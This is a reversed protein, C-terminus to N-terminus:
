SIEAQAIQRRLNHDLDDTSKGLMPILEPLLEPKMQLLDILGMIRTLPERVQHAHFKAMSALAQNREKLAENQVLLQEHQQQNVASIQMNETELAEMFSLASIAASLHAALMRVFGIDKAGFPKADSSTLSVIIQRHEDSFNWAWLQYDVTDDLSSCPSPEWLNRPWCRPLPDNLMENEWWKWRSAATALQTCVTPQGLPLHFTYHHQHVRMSFRFWHFNILYKLGTGLVEGLSTFSRAAIIQQSLRAFTEHGIRRGFGHELYGPIM